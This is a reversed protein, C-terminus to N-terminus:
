NGLRFFRRGTLSNTIVHENGITFPATAMNQWNSSTLDDTFQLVFGAANLPWSLRVGDPLSEIRLRAAPITVVSTFTLGIRLDDLKMVGIAAAQRFAFAAISVPATADAAVAKPDTEFAPNVWLWSTAAAPDYRLVVRYDTNTSLDSDAQVSLTNAGNAVGLRFKGPGANATNAFLRCRGGTTNFHAFYDGSSGPLQEFNVVLSVYLMVGSNTSFPGGPLLVSVDESQAGSLIVKGGAVALQGTASGSHHLWPSTGNSVLGGDAYGFDDGFLLAPVM